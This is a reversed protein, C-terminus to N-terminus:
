IITRNTYLTFVKFLIYGNTHWETYYINPPWNSLKAKNTSFTVHDFSDLFNLSLTIKTLSSGCFRAHRAEVKERMSSQSGPIILNPLTHSTTTMPIFQTCLFCDNGNIECTLELVACSLLLLIPLSVCWRCSSLSLLQADHYFFLIYYSLSYM